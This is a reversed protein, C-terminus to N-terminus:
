SAPEDCGALAQLARMAFSVVFDLAISFLISAAIGIPGTVAPLATFIATAVSLLAYVAILEDALDTGICNDLIEGVGGIFGFAGAISGLASPLNRFIFDIENFAFDSFLAGVTLAFSSIQLFDDLFSSNDAFAGNQGGSIRYAGDGTIPNYVAYGAGTWGPVTVISSHVIVENGALVATRIESATEPPLTLDAFNSELNEATLRYITQGQNVAM